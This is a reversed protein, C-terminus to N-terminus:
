LARRKNKMMIYIIKLEEKVLLHGECVCLYKKTFSHTRIQESLRAAAKSTRAFVM